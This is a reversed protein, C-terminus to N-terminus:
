ILKLLYIPILNQMVFNIFKYDYVAEILRVEILQLKHKGLCYCFRYKTHSFFRQFFFLESDTIRIKRCVSFSLKRFFNCGPLIPYYFISHLPSLIYIILIETGKSLASPSFSIQLVVYFNQIPNIM